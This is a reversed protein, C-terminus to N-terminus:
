IGRKKAMRFLQAASYRGKTFTETKIMSVELLREPPIIVGVNAIRSNIYKRICPAYGLQKMMPRLQAYDFKLPLGKKINMRNIKMIHNILNMRMSPLIWHFNLGLTHTKTRWLILIFPTKDFTRTQDLANYKTFILNGPKFDKQALKRKEKILVKVRKFSAAQTLEKPKKSKKVKAM